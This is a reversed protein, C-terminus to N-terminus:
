SENTALVAIGIDKSAPIGFMATFEDVVRACEEVEGSISVALLEIRMWSGRGLILM